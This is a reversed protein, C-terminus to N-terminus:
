VRNSDCKSSGNFDEIFMPGKWGYYNIVRRKSRWPKERENIPVYPNDKTAFLYILLTMVAILLIIEKEFAM